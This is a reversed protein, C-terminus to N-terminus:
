KKRAIIKLILRVFIPIVLIIILSLIFLHRYAKNRVAKIEEISALSVAQEGYYSDIDMIRKKRQIAMAVHFLVVVLLSIAFIWTMLDPNSFLMHIWKKFDFIWWKADKLWWLLLTLIGGYFLAAFTFWNHAVQKKHLGVYLKPVFPPVSALNIQLDEKYKSVAKKLGSLEILTSILKWTSLLGICIPLIFSPWHSHLAVGYVLAVVFCAILILSTTLIMLGQRFKEFKIIRFIASPILGSPDHQNKTDLTKVQLTPINLQLTNTDNIPKINM